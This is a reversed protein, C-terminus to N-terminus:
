EPKEVKPIVAYVEEAYYLLMTGCIRHGEQAM